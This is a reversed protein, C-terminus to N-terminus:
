SAPRGLPSTPLTPGDVWRCPVTTTCPVDPIGYSNHHIQAIVLEIAHVGIKYPQLDIGACPASNLGINLCCFGHSHPVHAGCATMWDVIEASHGIVVDPRHKRFWAQFAERELKEPVLLPIPEIGRSERHALFGADWRRQLRDTQQRQLVLGPRRYGLTELHDMISMMARHHDPCVSHLAPREILYDAYAGAFHTWTLQTFNPHQWAPMILVGRIGRTHLVTDLRQITLGRRGISFREVKFGLQAARDTAGRALDRLYSGSISPRAPEVLDVAALVGQFQSLRKRRVESLLSSALPNFHYGVERARIRVRDRTAANVRPHNRLAESVTTASLGLDRALTRITPKTSADSM